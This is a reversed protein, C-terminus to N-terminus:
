EEELQRLLLQTVGHERQAFHGFLFHASDRGGGSQGGRLLRFALLDTENGIAIVRAEDITIKFLVAFPTSAFVLKWYEILRQNLDVIQARRLRNRAVDDRGGPFHYPSVLANM